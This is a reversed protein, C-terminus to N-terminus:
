QSRLARGDTADASSRARSVRDTLDSVDVSARSRSLQWIFDQIQDESNKERLLDILVRIWLKIDRVLLRGADSLEPSTPNLLESALLTRLNAIAQETSPMFGDCLARAMHITRMKQHVRRQLVTGDGDEDHQLLPQTEGSRQQPNKRSQCCSLM